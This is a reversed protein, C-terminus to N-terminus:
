HAKDYIYKPVHYIYSGCKVLLANKGYYKKKMGAISGSASFNPYNSIGFRRGDKVYLYKVRPMIKEKRNTDQIAVDDAYAGM